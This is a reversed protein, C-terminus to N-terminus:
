RVVLQPDPPMLFHCRAPVRLLVLIVVLYLRSVGQAKWRERSDAKDALHDKDPHIRTQIM